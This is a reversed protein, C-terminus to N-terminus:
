DHATSKAAKKATKREAKWYDRKLRRLHKAWEKTATLLGKKVSAM